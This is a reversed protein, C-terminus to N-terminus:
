RGWCLGAQGTESRKSRGPPRMVVILLSTQNEAEDGSLRPRAARCPLLILPAKFGRPCM